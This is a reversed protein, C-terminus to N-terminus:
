KNATGLSERHQRMAAQFNAYWVGGRRFIRVREGVLESEDPRPPPDDTTAM